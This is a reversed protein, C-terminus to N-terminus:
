SLFLCVFAMKLPQERPRTPTIIQALHFHLSALVLVSCWFCYKLCQPKRHNSRAKQWVFLSHLFSLCCFSFYLVCYLCVPFFCHFVVVLFFFSLFLSSHCTRLSSPGHLCFALMLLGCPFVCVCWFFPPSLWFFGQKGRNEPWGNPTVFFRSFLKEFFFCRRTSFPGFISFM